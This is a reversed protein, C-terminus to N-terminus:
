LVHVQTISIQGSAPDIKWTGPQSGEWCVTTVGKFDICTKDATQTFEMSPVVFSPKPPQWPWGHCLGMHLAFM